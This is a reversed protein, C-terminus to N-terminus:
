HFGLVFLLNEMEVPSRRIVEMLLILQQDQSDSGTCRVGSTVFVPIRCDGGDDFM